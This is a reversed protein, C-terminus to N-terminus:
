IEPSDTRSGLKSDLMLLPTTEDGIIKLQNVIELVSKEEEVQEDIFWQLASQVAYNSEKRAISYIDNIMKTVNREHDLTQEFVSLVSDFNTPPSDVQKLVVQGEMGIIMDFIKMAHMIEEEYQMRMWNAMGLMNINEFHSAMSLYLFASYYENNIQENLAKELTESLM